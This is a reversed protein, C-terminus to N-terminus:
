WTGRVGIAGPGITLSANPTESTPRGWLMLGVGVAAGVGAVVFGVDAITAWTKADAIPGQADPTCATGTCHSKANGTSVFGATGAVAGVLLGAAGTGFAIWVPLGLGRPQPRETSVPTTTAPSSSASGVVVRERRGKEGETVVLKRTIPPQGAVEFTFAHAGSDVNVPKGDLHDILPQGDVSVRVDIVDARSADKAGFIITPQGKELEDLRVTCDDRLIQPCAPDSCRALEQRAASFRGARRLDQGRENADVCQAKTADARAFTTSFVTATALSCTALCIRRAHNTV